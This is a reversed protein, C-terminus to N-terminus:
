ALGEKTKKSKKETRAAFAENLWAAADDRVALAHEQYAGVLADQDGELHVAMTLRGHGRAGHGGITGSQQQWMQLSHLLAGAELESGHQITFGHVFLSGRMVAQGAFIMQNSKGDRNEGCPIEGDQEPLLDLATREADMRTYQYGSVFTEATRLAHDPLLWDEPLMSAITERNEQCVLCGRWVLLSGALIQDPLTGGLMRLLPFIRQMDAIRRLNERGGGETLNGGHLLFNLQPLTLKGRLDYADILWRAGPERVCRHRIANGSLMPVWMVGRDTIVPERAVISENGESRSMHTIPAAAESLCFIDYNASV